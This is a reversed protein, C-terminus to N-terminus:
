QRGSQGSVPLFIMIELYNRDNTSSNVTRNRCDINLRVDLSASNTIMLRNPTM